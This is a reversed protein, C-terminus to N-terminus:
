KSETEAAADPLSPRPADPKPAPESRSQWFPSVIASLAIVTLVVYTVRRWRAKPLRAGLVLGLTTGAMVLPIGLLGLFAAQVVEDGFLYLLLLSQPIMGTMLVFFLFARSRAASWDHAMVWLAMPPGGMGCFGLLFGSLSFAIWEWAPKPEAAPRMPWIWQVILIVLLLVGIVPKISQRDLSSFVWLASVGLPLAALRILAPRLVRRFDIERRLQYSGAVTQVVAALLIITVSQPLSFGTMLLLPIGFLGSAFGVMGQLVSSAFMIAAAAVYQFVTLEM